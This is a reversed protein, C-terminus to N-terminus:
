KKFDISFPQNLNLLVPHVKKFDDNYRILIIEYIDNIIVAYGNIISLIVSFILIKLRLLQSFNNISKM